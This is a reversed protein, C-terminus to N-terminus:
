RETNNNCENNYIMIKKIEELPKLLIREDSSLCSFMKTFTNQRICEEEFIRKISGNKVAMIYSAPPTLLISDHPVWYSSDHRQLIFTAQVYDLKDSPNSIDFGHMLSRDQQDPLGSTFSSFVTNNSQVITFLSGSVKAWLRGLTHDKPQQTYLPFRAVIAPWLFIAAM